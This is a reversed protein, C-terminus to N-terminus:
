KMGNKIEFKGKAFVRWAVLPISFGSDEASHQGRFANLM